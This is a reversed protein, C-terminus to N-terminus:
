RQRMAGKEPTYAPYADLALRDERGRDNVVSCESDFVMTAREAAQYPKWEPLGKHNPNGTRAFAIWADMMKESLSDRDRGSGVMAAAADGTGFVFPICITHPSKIAYGPGVEIPSNWAFEYV